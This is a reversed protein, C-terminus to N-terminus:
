RNFDDALRVIDEENSLNDVDTHQWIEAVITYADDAGVLRHREGEEFQVIHDPQVSITRGEDDTMSRIYGGETLFMWREARRDHYQWSLRQGPAVILLKPSLEATKMGLRAEEPTLGPFFEEVFRDAESSAMRIYAGWPKQDDMEVITYGADTVDGTVEGIFAEKDIAKTNNIAQLDRSLENM